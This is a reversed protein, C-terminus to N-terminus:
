WDWDDLPFFSNFPRPNALFTDEPDDDDESFNEARHPANLPQYLPVPAEEEAGAAEQTPQEAPLKDEEM